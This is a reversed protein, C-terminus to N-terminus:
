EDIRRIPQAVKALKAIEAPMGFSIWLEAPGFCELIIQPGNDTFTGPFKAVGNKPFNVFDKLAFQRHRHIQM